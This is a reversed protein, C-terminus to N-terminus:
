CHLSFVLRRCSSLVNSLNVPNEFCISIVLQVIAIVDFIVDFWAIIDCSCM